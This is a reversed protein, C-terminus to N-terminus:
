AFHLPDARQTLHVGISTLCRNHFDVSWQRARQRHLRLPAGSRADQMNEVM